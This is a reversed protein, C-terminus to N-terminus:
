LLKAELLIRAWIYEDFLTAKSKAALSLESRAESVAGSRWLSIAQYFHADTEMCSTAASEMLESGDIPQQIHDIIQQLWGSQVAVDDLGLNLRGQTILAEVWALQIHQQTAKFANKEYLATFRNQQQTIALLAAAKDGLGLQRQAEFVLAQSDDHTEQLYVIVPGAENYHQTLLAAQVYHTATWWNKELEWAKKAQSYALPFLGLRLYQLASNDLYLQQPDKAAARSIYSAATRAYASEDYRCPSEQLVDNVAEGYRYLYSASDANLTVARKAAALSMWYAKQSEYYKSAMYWSSANFPEEKLLARLVPDITERRSDTDAILAYSIRWPPPTERQVVPSLSRYLVVLDLLGDGATEICNFFEALYYFKQVMPNLPASAHAEGLLSRARALDKVTGGNHYDRYANMGAEITNAQEGVSNPALPSKTSVSGCASLLVTVLAPLIWRFFLMM